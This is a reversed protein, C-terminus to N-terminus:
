LQFLGRLDKSFNIRTYCIRELFKYYNKPRALETKTGLIEIQWYILNFGLREM